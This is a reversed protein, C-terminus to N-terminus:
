NWLHGWFLLPFIMQASSQSLYIPNPGACIVLEYFYQKHLKNNETRRLLSLKAVTQMNDNYCFSCYVETALGDATLIDPLDTIDNLKGSM